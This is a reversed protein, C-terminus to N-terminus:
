KGRGRLNEERDTGPRMDHADGHLAVVRGLRAGARDDRRRQSRVPERGLLDVTVHPIPEGCATLAALEAKKPQKGEGFVKWPRTAYITEGNTKMWRGIDKVIAEEQEDITGDARVSASRFTTAFRTKSRVIPRAPCM